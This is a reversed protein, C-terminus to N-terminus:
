IDPWFDGPSDRNQGSPIFMRMMAQEAIRKIVPADPGEAKGAYTAVSLIPQSRNCFAVLATLGDGPAAKAVPRSADCVEVSTIGPAPSFQVVLRFDPKAAQARDTTFNVKFGVSTESAAAAFPRAVDGAFPNDRVELLVPGAAAADKLDGRAVDTTQPYEYTVTRVMDACGALSGFAVLATIVLLCRRRMPMESLTM